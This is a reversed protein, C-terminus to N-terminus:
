VLRDGADSIERNFQGNGQNTAAVDINLIEPLDDRQGPELVVADHELIPLVVTITTGRGPASEVKLAGKHATVIRDVISLGLGTGQGVEKTTFFPDRVKPLVDAPIGMGTDSISVIVNGQEERTHLVIDGRDTIADAANTLLNLFIQNIQSPSCHIMPVNGYYKHVTIRNKIRNKMILLSKDLGENVDFPAHQARDLRSFDKLGQALTALEDLGDISDQVLHKAEEIDEKIGGKILRHMDRLSSRMNDRGDAGSLAAVVVAQAVDCLEDVDDLRDQIVSSNSMLYWLPTNIEHSVGAIMEGLSSMKEAHILRVQSEKLDDYATELQETRQSVRQELTDNSIQLARNTENLDQYSSQLRYISYAVGILLLVSCVSLLMRATEARSVTTLNFDNLSAVLKALDAVVTSNMISALTIEALIRDDVVAKATDLFGAVMGPTRADLAPDNRLDEIRDRLPVPDISGKGTAYEITDLAIAFSARSQTNLGSERLEKVLRPSEEQLSKLAAALTNQRATLVETNVLFRGLSDDFQELYSRVDSSDRPVDKMAQLLRNNEALRALNLEVSRSVTTGEDSAEKIGALAALIDAKSTELARMREAHSVYYDDKVARSEVILLFLVGVVLIAALATLPNGLARIDM